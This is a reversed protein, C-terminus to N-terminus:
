FPSTAYGFPNNRTETYPTGPANFWDSAADSVSKSAAGGIESLARHAAQGARGANHGTSIAINYAMAPVTWFDGVEDEWDQAPSLDDPTEWTLGFGIGLERPTGGYVKTKPGFGPVFVPIKPQEGPKPKVGGTTVNPAGAGTGVAGAGGTVAGGNGGGTGVTGSTGTVTTPGVFSRALELASPQTSSGSWTAGQFADREADLRANTNGTWDGAARGGNYSDRWSQREYDNTGTVENFWSM